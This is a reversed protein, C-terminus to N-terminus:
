FGEGLVYSDDLMVKGDKDIIGSVLVRSPYQETHPKSFEKLLHEYSDKSVWRKDPMSANGMFNYLTEDEPQNSLEGFTSTPCGTSVCNSDLNNDDNIDGNPCRHLPVDQEGWTTENYEDCLGYTHGVEHAVGHRIDDEIVIASSYLPSLSIGRTDRRGQAAFWGSPVVGIVRNESGKGTIKAKKYINKLLIISGLSTREFSSPIYLISTNRIILNDDAIPYTKNLFISNEIIATDFNNIWDIPIYFLTLSETEVINVTIEKSNTQAQMESALVLLLILLLLSHIKTKLKRM